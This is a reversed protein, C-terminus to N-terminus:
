LTIWEPPIIDKCNLKWWSFWRKPAIVVKEKNNNLWAGWWSFSSNAIINHKCLSMLVMEEYFKLESDTVYVIPFPIKFNKKVWPIDNSFIFFIPNVVQMTIRNVADQYYQLSPVGFISNIGKHTIYDGRRFHISIANNETIVSSFKKFVSSSEGKLSFEKKIMNSIHRFYKESQFYGDLYVDSGLRFFSPNYQFFHEHYVKRNKYPILFNVYPVIFNFKELLFKKIKRPPNDRETYENVEEKSAISASISFKDLCYESPLYRIEPGIELKFEAGRAQALAAAAAYQFFQNGLGGHVKLLIM